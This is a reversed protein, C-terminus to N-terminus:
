VEDVPIAVSVRDSKIEATVALSREPVSAKHCFDKPVFPLRNRFGAVVLTGFASMALMKIRAVTEWRVMM